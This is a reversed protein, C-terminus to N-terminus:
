SATEAAPPIPSDAASAARASALRYESPSVGEQKRFVRSFYSPDTFGVAAAADAVSMRPNAMLRKAELLRHRSLYDVFTVDFAAKFERCFRSPSMGCLSAAESEPIPRPYHKAVHAVALQLRPNVPLRPRFRTEQPLPAAVAYPRRETQTRKAQVAGLIRKLSREIEATSVPKILLDFVRSRLAWTALDASSQLTLMVIPVSPWRNKTAAVLKLGAMEPYDFNFCILDWSGPLGDVALESPEIEHVECARGFESRSAEPLKPMGANVWLLKM